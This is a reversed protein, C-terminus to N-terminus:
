FNSLNGVTYGTDVNGLVEQMERIKRKYTRHFVIALVLFITGMVLMVVGGIFDMEYENLYNNTSELTVIDTNDVRLSVVTVLQSSVGLRTSDRERVRFVIVQGVALDNLAEFDVIQEASLIGIIASFEELSIGYHPLIQVRAITATHERTNSNTVSDNSSPAIFFMLSMFCMLGAFIFFIIYLYKWQLKTFKNLEKVLYDIKKELRTETAENM